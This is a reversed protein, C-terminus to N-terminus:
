GAVILVANSCVAVVWPCALGLPVVPAYRRPLVSRAAVGVAVALLKLGALGAIGAVGLASRALPNAEAYGLSVGYATLWLDGALALVAVAWLWRERRPLWARGAAPTLRFTHLPSM